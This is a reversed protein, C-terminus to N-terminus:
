RPRPEAPAHFPMAGCTRGDFRHALEPHGPVVFDWVPKGVAEDHHYTLSAATGRPVGKDAAAKAAARVTCAPAPIPRACTGESATLFGPVVAIEVSRTGKAGGFRLVAVRRLPDGVSVLGDVAGALAIECLSAAKEVSQALQLAAPLVDMADVHAPDTPNFSACGLPGGCSPTATATAEPQVSAPPPVTTTPPPPAKTTAPDAGAPKADKNKFFLVAGAAGAAVVLGIGVAV